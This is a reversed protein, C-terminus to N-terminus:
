ALQALLGHEVQSLGIGTKPERNGWRHFPLTPVFSHSSSKTVLKQEHFVISLSTSISIISISASVSVSISLLVLSKKCDTM